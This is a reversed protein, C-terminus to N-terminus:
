EILRNMPCRYSSTPSSIFRTGYLTTCRDAHRRARRFKLCPKCGAPFRRSSEQLLQLACRLIKEALFDGLRDDGNGRVEVVALALGGLLGAFDRAEFHQADDILRRRRRQGVAEVLFFVLRDGDVVQAAAREINGDKFHAFADDFYLRGVAVRVQAAIVDVLAITSQIIASNM